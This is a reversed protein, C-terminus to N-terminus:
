PNAPVVSLTVAIGRRAADVIVHQVVATGVGRGEYEPMIRLEHIYISDPSWSYSVLRTVM